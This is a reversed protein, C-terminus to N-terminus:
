RLCLINSLAGCKIATFGEECKAAKVCHLNASKFTHCFAQANPASGPQTKRVSAAPSRCSCTTATHSEICSLARQVPPPLRCSFLLKGSPKWLAEQSSSRSSTVNSVYKKCQTARSTHAQHCRRKDKALQPTVGHLAGHQCGPCM